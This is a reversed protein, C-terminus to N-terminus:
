EAAAIAPAAPAAPLRLSQQIAMAREYLKDFAISEETVSGNAEVWQLVAQELVEGRIEEMREPQQRLWTKIGEGQDGYPATLANLREEVAEETPAIGEQRSLAGIILGLRTREVALPTLTRRLQAEDLPEKERGQRKREQKERDVLGALDLEVMQSPVEIPNANALSLLIQQKFNDKALNDGQERTRERIIEKLKELGGEQIGMKVALADDLEALLRQQVDTVRCRYEATKGSLNLDHFDAPLTTTITRAEGSVCGLLQSEIEPNIVGSKLEVTYNHINGEPRPEGDVFFDIDAVIRDGTQAAHGPTSEYTAHEERINQLVEEVESEQHQPVLRLLPIGKCGTPLFDPFIQLAASYTFDQGRLVPGIQVAPRAVPRLNNQVIADPLTAEILEEATERALESGFRSAVMSLPAKGRRFGPIHAAAALEKVKGDLLQDVRQSPIRVTLIRDFSGQEQISVEM